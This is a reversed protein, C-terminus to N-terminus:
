GRSGRLSPPNAVLGPNEAAAAFAATAAAGRIGREGHGPSTTTQPAAGTDSTERAVSGSAEKPGPAEKPAPAENPALAAVHIAAAQERRLCIEYDAIRAVVPGGFLARRVMEVHMGPRFGLHRLRRCLEPSMSSDFGAICAVCEPPLDCLRVHTQSGAGLSPVTSTGPSTEPSTAPSTGRRTEPSTGRSTQPSPGRSPETSTEHGTTMTGATTEVRTATQGLAEAGAAFSGFRTRSRRLGNHMAM